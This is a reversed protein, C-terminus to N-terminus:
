SEQEQTKVGTTPLTPTDEDSRAEQNALQPSAQQHIKSILEHVKIFPLNGLAELVLNIEEVSLELRIQKM